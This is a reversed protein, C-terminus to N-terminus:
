CALLFTPLLITPMIQHQLFRVSVPPCRSPSSLTAVAPLPPAPLVFSASPGPRSAHRRPGDTPEEVAAKSTWSSISGPVLSSERGRLFLQGAELWM